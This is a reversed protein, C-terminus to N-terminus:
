EGRYMQTLKELVPDDAPRERMEELLRAVIFPAQREYGMERLQGILRIRREAAADESMRRLTGIGVSLLKWLAAATVLSLGASLPDVFRTGATAERLEADEAVDDVLAGIEPVSQLNAQFTEIETSNTM